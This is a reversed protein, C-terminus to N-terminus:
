FDAFGRGHSPNIKQNRFFAEVSREGWAKKDVTATWTWSTNIKNKLNFVSISVSVAFRYVSESFIYPTVTSTCITKNDWRSLDGGRGYGSRFYSEGSNQSAIELAVPLRMLNLLSRSRLFGTSQPVFGQFWTIFTPKFYSEGGLILSKHLDGKKPGKGLYICNSLITLISKPLSFSSSSKEV